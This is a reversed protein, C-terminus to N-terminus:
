KQEILDQLTKTARHLTVRVNTKKKDLVTAIEATSLEEIYKLMLIEKYESKMKDMLVTLQEIALKTDTQEALTHLSDDPLQLQHMETAHENTTSKKRYWDIVTNRATQYLFARFGRVASKDSNTLHEWVKLFVDSTLEEADHSTPVKFAIFRYIDSIYLNYLQAFADRDHFTQVKYVLTQMKIQQKVM